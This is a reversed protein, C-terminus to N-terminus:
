SLLILPTKAIFPQNDCTWALTDKAAQESIEIISYLIINNTTPARLTTQLLLDKNKANIPQKKYAHISQHNLLLKLTENM